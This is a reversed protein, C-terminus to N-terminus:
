QGECFWQPVDDPVFSLRLIFTFSRLSIDGASVSTAPAASRNTPNMIRAQPSDGADTAFTVGTVDNAYEHVRIRTGAPLGDYSPMRVTIPGGSHGADIWVDQEFVAPVELAM